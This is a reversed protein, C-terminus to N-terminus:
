LSSNINCALRLCSNKDLHSHRHSCRSPLLQRKAGVKLFFSSPRRNRRPKACNRVPNRRAFSTGSNRVVCQASSCRGTLIETMEFNVHAPLAISKKREPFSDLRLQVGRTDANCVYKAGISSNRQSRMKTELEVQSETALM